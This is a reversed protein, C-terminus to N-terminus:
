DVISYYNYLIQAAEARTLTGQPNFKNNGDGNIIGWAFAKEVAARYENPVSALDAPTNSVRDKVWRPNNLEIFRTILLAAQARTINKGPELNDSALLIGDKEAQAIYASYWQNGGSMRGYQTRMLM